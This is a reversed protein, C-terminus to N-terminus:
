KNSIVSQYFMSEYFSSDKPFFSIKLYENKGSKSNKIDDDYFNDIKWLNRVNSIFKLMLMSKSYVFSKWNFNQQFSCLWSMVLLLDPILYLSLTLKISVSSYFSLTAVLLMFSMIYWRTTHWCMHDWTESLVKCKFCIKWNTCGMSGIVWCINRTKWSTKFVDEAYCKEDELIDQLRRSSTKLVYKRYTKRFRRWSTKLNHKCSTKCNYRWSM